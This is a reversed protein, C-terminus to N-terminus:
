GVFSHVGVQAQQGVQLMPSQPVEPARSLLADYGLTSCFNLVLQPYAGVVTDLGLTSQVGVRFRPHVHRLEFQTHGPKEREILMRIRQVDADSWRQTFPLFITFRHAYFHFPDRDPDGTGVLAFDGIRANGELQLRDMIQEGWLRSRSGLGGQSTFFLWRRLQFNEQIHVDVDFALKLIMQLGAPTGRLRYLEVVHRLLSRRVSQSWNPEFTMDIWSALWSLFEDPVGGPDFLAYMGDIRKEIGDFLTQFISLFRELFDKSVPDFSYVAPLYQLYTQRPFHALLGRLLPTSEGDGRMLLRLWLYRGPPSLILFSQTNPVSAQWDSEDLAVIEEASLPEEASFTALSLSTGAPIDDGFDLELMHWPCHYLNSDLPLSFYLGHREFGKPEVVEAVKEPSGSLSYIRGTADVALGTCPAHWVAYREYAPTSAEGVNVRFLSGQLAVLLSGQADIQIPSPGLKGALEHAFSIRGQVRGHSDVIKIDTADEDAVYLSGDADVALHTPSSFPLEPVPGDLEPPYSFDWEILAGQASGGPGFLQSAHLAETRAADLSPLREAIWEVDSPNPIDGDPLLPWHELRQRAPIYVFREGAHAGFKPQFSHAALVNGTIESFSMTRCGWKQVRGNDRDAIYINGKQDSVVDWPYNFQGLANGPRGGARGWIAQLKWGALRFVQVRHNNTDAVYLFGAPSVALGHPADFQRGGQGKGGLCPIYEVAPSCLEVAPLHIPYEDLWERTTGTDKELDAFSLVTQRANAANWATTCIVEIESESQPIKGSGTLWREVRNAGPLYVFTAGELPGESVRFYRVQPHMTERRVIRFITHLKSDSIYLTGDPSAAIGTPTELGGFTGAEDKLPIPQAPLTALRIGESSIKLRELTQVRWGEQPSFGQYSDLRFYTSEKNPM